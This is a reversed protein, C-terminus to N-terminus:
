EPSPACSLRITGEAFDYTISSCAAIQDSGIRTLLDPKGQGKRRSVIIGNKDFRPDDRAIEGVRTPEGYDEIRVAFREVPLTGLMVPVAIHMSRTPRTIGFDMVATGESRPEFGGDQHTAIFNATPATVLNEAREPVFIMMLRKKGVRVETGLRTNSRGGARKLPFSQVTEDAQPPRLAFTVRTYPLHHVGIVGDAKLSVPRDSWALTLPVPGVSFDALAPAASGTVVVPGFRWGRGSAPVLMLRAAVEPNIVPPGFAEASVELRLPQGNVLLTIVNDGEFVLEEPLPAPPPPAPLASPDQAALLALAFLPPALM